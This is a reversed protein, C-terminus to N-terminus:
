NKKFSKNVAQFHNTDKEKIVQRIQGIIANDLEQPCKRNTDGLADVVSQFVDGPNEHLIYQELIRLTYVTRSQVMLMFHLACPIGYPM